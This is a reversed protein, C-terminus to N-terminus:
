WPAGFLSVGSWFYPHRLGLRIRARQDPTLQSLLEGGEGVVRNGELRVLGSAFAIRTAQLAEAKPLGQDLYRYFQVFFASTAVDDVFWLTGVASRAGAQLALGSFGLESQQDGLATRCGSLSFLDLPSDQRRQRLRSFDAFSMPGTGTQIWSKEPGGPQFEAHTAVHVRRIEPDAAAELLRVSTFAGDLVRESHGGQSVREVEQPVLPLPAMSSFRSAGAVLTRQPGRNEPPSLPTLRISPTLSFAFAEGFFRKGDSLAAFPVAQLTPDTAILLTSIGLRQLDSALPAILLSYLQRSPTQSDNLDIPKQTGLQDYLARLLAALQATEVDVRRGIIAGEMPILVLDLFGRSRDTKLPTFSIRLGAPTYRSPQFVASPTTPVTRSAAEVSINSVPAATASPLACGLLLTLTAAKTVLSRELMKRGTNEPRRPPMRRLVNAM